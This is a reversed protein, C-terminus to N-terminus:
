SCKEQVIPYLGLEKACKLCYHRRTRHGYVVIKERMNFPRRCKYCEFGYKKVIRNRYFYPINRQSVTTVFIM